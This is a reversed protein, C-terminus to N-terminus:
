SLFAMSSQEEAENVGTGMEPAEVGTTHRPSLLRELYGQAWGQSAMAPESIGVNSRMEKLAFRLKKFFSRRNKEVM